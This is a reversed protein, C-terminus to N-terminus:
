RSIDSDLWSRDTSEILDPVELDTFEFHSKRVCPDTLHIQSGLTIVENLDIPLENQFIYFLM